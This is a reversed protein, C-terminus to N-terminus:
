APDLDSALSRIRTVKVNREIKALLQCRAGIGVARDERTVCSKIRKYPMQSCEAMRAADERHRRAYRYALAAVALAGPQTAM